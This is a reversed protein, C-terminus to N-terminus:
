KTACQASTVADGACDGAVSRARDSRLRARSKSASISGISCPDRSEARYRAIRDPACHCRGSAHGLWGCPCPNMASVFQFEAPFTSQRAARSIHIVGSELPERLCKSCAATGNRCSTSSFCATIRSRFRARGRIAEAASWRLPARRTIRRATRVRAGCRRVFLAPSRPSRRARSRRTRPSRRCSAPCATARADVQRNGAARDDASSHAGARAITLARKAHSQGRVDALDPPLAGAAAGGAQACVRRAPTRARLTAACPLCRDAPYIIAERALASGGRERRCCSPAVTAARACRWRCRAAFRACHAAWRSSAPSNTAPSRTQGSDAENAALIGIAIPLDFRGSGEASRRACSERHDKAGPFEFQANQLAARVRDRSERVETDPLTRRPQIGSTRRCSASRGDGAPCRAGRTRAFPRRRAVHLPREGAHANSPLSAVRHQVVYALRGRAIPRRGAPSAYALRSRRRVVSRERDSRCSRRAHAGDGSSSAGSSATARAGRGSTASVRWWRVDKMSVNAWGIVHERWLLPLAYYGFRRKSPPNYAEFRYPWAWFFSSAARDWVIPDFPALLRVRDDIARASAGTSTKPGIGTSATSDRLAPTATERSRARHRDRAQNRRPTSALRRVLVSLTAAPLPAYKRVVIADVLLDLTMARSEAGMARPAHEHAAYIRVGSARRAIRLLGRYHM